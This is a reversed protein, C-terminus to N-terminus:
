DDGGQMHKKMVNQVSPVIMDQIHEDKLLYGDAEREGAPLEEDGTLIIVPVGNGGERIKRMLDMGGMEPMHMDSIVLGIASDARFANLAQVGNEATVASYGADELVAVLVDRIFPDDDVVLVKM